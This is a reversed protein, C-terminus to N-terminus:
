KVEVTPTGEDQFEALAAPSLHHKAAATDIVPKYLEPHEVVPFAATLRTANLRRAAAKVLVAHAGVTTTGQPLRRRLTAKITDIRERDAEIAAQRKVLEAALQDLEIMDEPTLEVGTTDESM